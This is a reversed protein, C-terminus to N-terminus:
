WTRDKIIFQHERRNQDHSIQILNRLRREDDENMAVFRFPQHTSSLSPLMEVTGLVAGAGTLFMLKMRSGRDLPSPVNLLGGTVSVVQLKARIRRGSECRLVVPTTPAYQLRPSRWNSNPQVLTVVTLAIIDGFRPIHSTVSPSSRHTDTTLRWDETKLEDSTQCANETPDRDSSVPHFPIGQWNFYNHAHCLDCIPQSLRTLSQQLASGHPGVNV